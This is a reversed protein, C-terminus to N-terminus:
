LGALPRAYYAWLAVVERALMFRENTLRFTQEAPVTFVDMGARQYALKIRPLHFFHSVALVRTFGHKKLVPVTNTVTEDTSLGMRDTLIRDSPVGLKIAFLRMADTEHIDGQGPGGSMILHTVLGEHYLCCGSSVRDALAISLEGNSYVKCGFVVAADAPRRYDTWGFCHIQLLPFTVLCFFTAGAAIGWGRSSSQAPPLRVHMAALITLLFIAVVLSFSLPFRSTIMSRSLLTHFTVTDRLAILIAGVVALKWLCVTIGSAAPKCAFRFLLVSFTLMLSTTIWKPAGRVDLWWLSADFGRHFLEGGVNLITFGAFFLAIGRGAHLIFPKLCNNPMLQACAVVESDPM